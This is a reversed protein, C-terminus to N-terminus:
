YQNIPAVDLETLERKSLLYSMRLTKFFYWATM